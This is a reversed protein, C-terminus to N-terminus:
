SRSRRSSRRTRSSGSTRTSRRTTLRRPLARVARRAGRRRRPRRVHRARRPRARRALGELRERDPGDGAVVVRLSPTRPRPRSCSTSASPATSGASPSSSTATARRLPVALEQPPPRCCRRTSGPRASSGSPSTARSPSCSARRASRRATSGHVARRTARDERAEGFQGLETRDLEYAQRFQHVLWVVKNPHRVAYSPFKTAIVLDIPRGEAETSTSCGGSSRRRSCGRRGPVVQVSRHRARGRPRAQAAGAVLDDALIEAGGRAFPVQPPCVAIRMPARRDRLRAARLPAREAASVNARWDVPRGASTLREEPENLFRKEVEAFGAQRALLELTEPVLPQAHTLDAFYNRLALPSLPNITEAVLVGGPAAERAALELLRVLAPPPLHEVLQAAFIAASRATRWSELHALADGQEVDLGEGRCYAVMDADLTSGARRSGPRACCRWSSAAGAASTSCRRRTASTTSTGRAPARPDRRRRGACGRSEFAFYDPVADAGPQAAVTAPAAEARRRELRLLREEVEALLRRREALEATVSERDAAAEELGAAQAAQLEARDSRREDSERALSASLEDNRGSLEDAFRLLAANFARQEAAFPGVYWSMLKRLARKVPYALWGRVGPRRHIPRDVAVAWRAEAESRADRRAEARTLPRAPEDEGRVARTLREVHESADVSSIGASTFTKDAGAPM